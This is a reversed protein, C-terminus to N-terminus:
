ARGAAFAMYRSLHFDEDGLQHDIMILRKAYHPLPLEWSMGIGGHMQISEEAVLTGVRGVTYKAASVTKERLVRDNGQLAAAANIVASRAQEIELLIDAMRHQLAQFSGIPVGFQTRERLYTLTMDKASQMVGLSEAALALVGRAVARELADCAQGQPGLLADAPLQVNSLVLEAGRGGDILPYGRLTVGAAGAPVLFLSIGGQDGPAGGTRASVVFLDAAEAQWVVGKAGNLVWGGDRQRATAQVQCLHYHSQPEYHAWAAIRQGQIMANLHEQQGANGLEAILSGALLVPLFPEVVLNRGLEEFIVAIDFPDGGYGGNAESFLAGVIGLEALQGWHGASYGQASQAIQDRAEFTYNDRLYRGLSDAIMRRDETHEFKM